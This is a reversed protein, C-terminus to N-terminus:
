LAMLCLSLIYFMHQLTTEIIFHLPPDTSVPHCSCHLQTKFEKLTTGVDQEKPTSIRKQLALDKPSPTQFSGRMATVSWLPIVSDLCKPISQLLCKHVSTMQDNPALSYLMLSIYASANTLLPLYLSTVHVAMLIWLFHPLFFTIGTKKM